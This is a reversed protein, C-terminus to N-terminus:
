MFADMEDERIECFPTPEVFLLTPAAGLSGPMLFDM